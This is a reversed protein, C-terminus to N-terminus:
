DKCRSVHPNMRLWACLQEREAQELKVDSLKVRFVLMPEPSMELRQEAAEGRPNEPGGREEKQAKSTDKGSMRRRPEFPVKGADILVKAWRMWKRLSDAPLGLEKAIEVISAGERQRERGYETVEKKLEAGYRRAGWPTKPATRVRRKLEERRSEM